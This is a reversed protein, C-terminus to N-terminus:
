SCHLRECTQDKSHYEHTRAIALGPDGRPTSRVSLQEDDGVRLRAGNNVNWGTQKVLSQRDCVIGKDTVEQCPTAQGGIDLIVRLQSCTFIFLGIPVLSVPINFLLRVFCHRCPAITYTVM